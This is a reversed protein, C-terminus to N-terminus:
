DKVRRARIPRLEGGRRGAECFRTRM